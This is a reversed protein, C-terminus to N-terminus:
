QLQFKTPITLNIEKCNESMTMREKALELNSVFQDEIGYGLTNLLEYTFDCNSTLNIKINLTGEIQNRQAETPYIIDCHTIVYSTDVHGLSNQTVLTNLSFVGLFLNGISETKSIIEKDHYETSSILFSKGCENLEYTKWTGAAKGNKTVETSRLAGNKFYTHQTLVSDKLEKLIYGKSNFQLYSTKNGFNFYGKEALRGSRDYVEYKGHYLEKKPKVVFYHSKIAKTKPYYETVEKLKPQGFTLLSM